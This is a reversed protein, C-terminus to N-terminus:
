ALEIITMRMTKNIIDSKDKDIMESYIDMSKNFYIKFNIDNYKNIIIDLFEDCKKDIKNNDLNNAFNLIKNGTTSKCLSLFNNLNSIALYKLIYYAFVNTEERYNYNERRNILDELSLGMYNLIKIVQFRSFTNELFLCNKIGTVIHNKNINNDNGIVNVLLTNILLAWIETYTENLNYTSDIGFFDNLRVSYRSYLYRPMDIGLAHLLEHIILKMYEERRYIYIRTTKQCPLTVGTNINDADLVKNKNTPLYKKFDTLFLYLELRETVCKIGRYKELFKIVTIINLVSLDIYNFLTKDDLNKYFSDSYINFYIVYEIDMIITYKILLSKNNGIYRHIKSSVFKTKIDDILSKPHKFNYEIERKIKKQFRSDICSNYSSLLEQYLSYLINVSNNDLIEHTKLIMNKSIIDNLKNIIEISVGNNSYKNM